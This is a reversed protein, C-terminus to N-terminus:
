SARACRGDRRRCARSRARACRLPFSARPVQDGTQRGRYSKSAQQEQARRSESDLFGSRAVAVAVHMAAVTLLERDVDDFPLGPAGPAREVIIMGSVGGDGTFPTELRAAAPSLDGAQVASSEDDTLRVDVGTFGFCQDMMGFALGTFIDKQSQAGAIRTTLRLMASRRTDQAGSTM